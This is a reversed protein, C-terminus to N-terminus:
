DLGLHDLAKQYVAECTDFSFGRRRLHEYIKKKLDFPELNKWQTLKPVVARWAPGAEQFDALMRDIIAGKVGKQFLEHRLAFEGRPRHRCRSEIWARAFQADDIYKFEELKKLTDAIITGAFGKKELFGRVEERSRPRFKLYHMARSLAHERQDETRLREIEDAELYGGVPLSVALRESVSFAYVEDIFVNYRKKNRKQPTIATIRGNM